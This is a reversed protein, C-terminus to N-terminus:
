PIRIRRCNPTSGQRPPPLRRSRYRHGRKASDQFPKFCGPFPTLAQSERRYIVQLPLEEVSDREEPFGVLERDETLEEATVMLHVHESDGLASSILKAPQYRVCFDGITPHDAIWGVGISDLLLPPSPQIVPDFM